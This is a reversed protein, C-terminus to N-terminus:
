IPKYVIGYLRPTHYAISDLNTYTYTRVFVFDGLTANPLVNGDNLSAYRYKVSWIGNRPWTSPNRGNLHLVNRRDDEQRNYSHVKLPSDNRLAMREVFEHWYIRISTWRGNHQRIIILREYKWCQKSRLLTWGTTRIFVYYNIIYDAV